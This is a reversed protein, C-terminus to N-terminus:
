PNGGDKSNHETIQSSGIYRMIPSVNNSFPISLNVIIIERTEDEQLTNETFSNDHRIIEITPQFHKMKTRENRTQQQLTTLKIEVYM